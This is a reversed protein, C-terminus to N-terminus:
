QWYDLDDLWLDYDKDNAVPHFSIKLVDKVGPDVKKGWSPQTFKDWPIRV